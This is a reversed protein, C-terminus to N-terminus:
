LICKTKELNTAMQNQKTWQNTADLDETVSTKSAYITADDACLAYQNKWILALDNIFMLFLMPGLISDQPVGYTKIEL